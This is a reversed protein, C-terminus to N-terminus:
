AVLNQNFAYDSDEITIFNFPLDVVDAYDQGSEIMDEDDEEAFWNVLVRKGKDEMKKLLRFIDILCKASSTNFYELSIDISIVKSNIFLEEIKEMIPHYFNMSSEPTSRGRIMIKGSNSDLFVYPTTKTAEIQLHM